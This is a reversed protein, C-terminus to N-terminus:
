RSASARSSRSYTRPTIKPRTPLPPSPSNCSTTSNSPRHVPPCCSATTSRCGNEGASYSGEIMASPMGHFDDMSANLRVFRNALEADAYGHKVAESVDFKGLLKFVMLTATPEYSDVATKRIVEFAAPQDPDQVKDWGPPRPMTVSLETLTKPTLPIGVVDQQQLYMAIPVPRETATETARSPLLSQYDPSEPACGLLLFAPIAAVVIGRRLERLRVCSKPRDLVPELM